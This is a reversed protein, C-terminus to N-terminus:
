KIKAVFQGSFKIIKTNKRDGNKNVCVEQFEVDISGRIKKGLLFKDSNLYILQKIPVWENKENFTKVVYVTKYVSHVKDEFILVSLDDFTSVTEDHFYIRLTDSSLRASVKEICHFGQFETCVKTIKVTDLNSDITFIGTQGYCNFSITLVLLILYYKTKM